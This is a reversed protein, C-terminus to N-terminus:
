YQHGGDIFLFDIKNDGLYEKLQEIAKPSNSMERICIYNNKPYAQKLKKTTEKYTDYQKEYKSGQIYPDITIFTTGLNGLIASLLYIFGGSASGIELVTKPKLEKVKKLTCIIEAPTQGIVPCEFNPTDLDLEEVIKKIRSNM